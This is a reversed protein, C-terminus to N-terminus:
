QGQTAGDDAPPLLAATVDAVGTAAAPETVPQRRM